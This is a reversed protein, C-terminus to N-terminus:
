TFGAVGQSSWFLWLIKQSSDPASSEVSIINGGERGWGREETRSCVTEMDLISHARSPYSLWPLCPCAPFWMFLHSNGHLCSAKREGNKKRWFHSYPVFIFELFLLKNLDIMKPLVISRVDPSCDCIVERGVTQPSRWINTTPICNVHQARGEKWTLRCISIEVAQWGLWHKPVTSTCLCLFYFRGQM